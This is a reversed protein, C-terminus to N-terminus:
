YNAYFVFHSTTKQGDVREWVDSKSEHLEWNLGEGIGGTMELVRVKKKGWRLRVLNNKANESALM